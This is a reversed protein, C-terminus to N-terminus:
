DWNGGAAAAAAAVCIFGVRAFSGFM